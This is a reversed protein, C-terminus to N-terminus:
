APFAPFRNRNAKELKNLIDSSIILTKIAKKFAGGQSRCDNYIYRLVNLILKEGRIFKTLKSATLAIIGFM